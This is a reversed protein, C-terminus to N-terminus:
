ENLIYIVKEDPLSIDLKKRMEYDIGEPTEFRQINIDIEKKRKEIKEFDEHIKLSEAKIDKYTNYIRFLGKILFLLIIIIIILFIKSSIFKKFRKKEKKRAHLERM